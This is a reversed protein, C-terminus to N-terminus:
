KDRSAVKAKIMLREKSVRQKVREKRPIGSAMNQPQLPQHVMRKAKITTSHM